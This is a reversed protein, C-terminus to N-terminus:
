ALEDLTESEGPIGERRLDFGVVPLSFEECADCMRVADQVVEGRINPAINRDPVEPLDGHLTCSARRRHRVLHIRDAKFISFRVKLERVRNEVRKSGGEDRAAPLAVEG